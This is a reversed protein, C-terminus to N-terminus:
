LESAPEEADCACIQSLSAFVLLFILLIYLYLVLSSFLFLAFIQSKLVRDPM